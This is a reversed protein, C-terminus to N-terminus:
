FLTGSSAGPQAGTLQDLRLVEITGQEPVRVELLPIGSWEYWVIPVVIRPRGAGEVFEIRTKLGGRCAEELFALPEPLPPPTPVYDELRLWGGAAEVLDSVRGEGELTEGLRRLVAALLRADDLARHRDPPIPVGLLDALADLSHSGSPVLRRSARLSCLLRVRPEPLRARLWELGLIRADFPANHAVLFSEGCFELFRGLVEKANPRGRVMDDTIHHVVTTEPPIPQEPDVLEAFHEVEEGGRVRVAALELLRAGAGTGTTETDFVVYDAQSLPPDTVAM